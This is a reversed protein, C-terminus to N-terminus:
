EEGILRSLAERALRKQHKLYRDTILEREPHERLWGEGHRLLKEVEADGVWYHKDDDLVPILVYLHTLLDSLCVTGKLTVTFYASEGWEPFKEDLSHHETTVSYGLPEFLERILGEGARCAVVTLKATLPIAHDALEQRGKSRGSMATGFARGMAVSLFSSLVYPRDNVYQDLTGGEHQGRKGRVLGIPDVDLLLAATCREATAEPYFVHAKGFSLDFSHLNAPNKHLLFGL